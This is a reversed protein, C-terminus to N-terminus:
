YGDSVTILTQTKYMEPLYEKFIYEFESMNHKQIEKIMSLHFQGKGVKDTNSESLKKYIELVIHQFIKNVALGNWDDVLM